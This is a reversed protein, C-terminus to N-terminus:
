TMVPVCPVSSPSITSHSFLAFVDLFCVIMKVFGSLLFYKVMRYIFSCFYFYFAYVFCAIFHLSYVISFCFIMILPSRKFFVTSANASKPRVVFLPTVRRANDSISILTLFYKRERQSSSPIVTVQSSIPFIYAVSSPIAFSWGGTTM